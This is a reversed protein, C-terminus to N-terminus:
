RVNLIAAATLGLFLGVVGLHVSFGLIGAIPLGVLWFVILNLVAGLDQRGAGRLVGGLVANIGDGFICFAMAMFVPAAARAVKPEDTFLFGAINRTSLVIICLISQTLLTISLASYAARKASKPLQAGVANGVRVSAASGLGLPLMYLLGSVSLALGMVSVQMEPNPLWGSMIVCSEFAWWEVTVMVMSPVALKVYVVLEQFLFAARSPAVVCSKEPVGEATCKRHRWYVWGIEVLLPALQAFVTSLAAGHLGMGLDAILVRSFCVSAILAALASWIAPAVIKQAMLFRKLCESAGLLPLGPSAWWVYNAAGAAIRIDQGLLLLAPKIGLWSVMVVLSLFMTILLGRHLAMGVTAYSGRGYAQGALTELAGLSGIVLSLGSVNFVSTGLVACSLGFSGVYRGVYSLSVMSVLVGSVQSAILPIGLTIIRYVEHRYAQRSEESRVIDSEFDLTWRSMTRRLSLRRGDSDSSHLLEQREDYEEPSFEDVHMTSISMGNSAVCLESRKESDEVAMDFLIRNM